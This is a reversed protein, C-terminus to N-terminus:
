ESSLCRSSAYKCRPSACERRSSSCESRPSAYKCRPSACERRSSSCESRPSACKWRPSGWEASAGRSSTRRPICAHQVHANSVYLQSDSLGCTPFVCPTGDSIAFLSVPLGHGWSNRHQKPKNLNAWGAHQCLLAPLLNAPECHQPTGGNPADWSAGRGEHHWWTRTRVEKTGHAGKTTIGKAQFLLVVPISVFDPLAGCPKTYTQRPLTLTKCFYTLPWPWPWM